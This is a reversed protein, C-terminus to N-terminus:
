IYNRAIGQDSWFFSIIIFLKGCSSLFFFFRHLILIKQIFIVESVAPTLTPFTLLIQLAICLHLLCTHVKGQMDFCMDSTLLFSTFFFFFYIHMCGYAFFCIKIEQINQDTSKRPCWILKVISQILPQFQISTKLYVM